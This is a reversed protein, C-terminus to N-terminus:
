FYYFGFIQLLSDGLLFLMMTAIILLLFAFVMFRLLCGGLAAGVPPAEPIYTERTSARSARAAARLLELMRAARPSRATTGEGGVEIERGPTPTRERRGWPSPTPSRAPASATRSPPFASTRARPPAPSPVTAEPPPTADGFRAGCQPCASADLWRGPKHNTCYYRAQAEHCAECEGPTHKTTGCNPCRLVVGTM